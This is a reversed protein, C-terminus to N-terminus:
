LNLWKKRVELQQPSADPLPEIKFKVKNNRLLTVPLVMPLGDRTVAVSVKDGIKKGNLMTSVDTVPVSDVATLEDNVNLGDIWGAGGRLVTTIIKKGNNNSINIGMTPDNADTLEDSLKYGAYGLYKGYDIPAVGYIYKKYFDDFDKGAFKEIGMKFEADTYGRKKLKYYTNYMYRMVDDLSNKGNSSNIIELDILMAVLAGKDYYSIGTNVSNENPRYAKIWSDYSSEALPQVKAGPQNEVVNIVGAIADSGYQSSAGDRLVEIRDIASAPIANLDTGVSGRGVTGNVNLLATNYRRKGNVLVLTQDPGLGRITAPDIHDTGDAVTQRNSNYSPAVFNIMQTPEVQGTLNLERNTIVDVPVPTQTRSRSISSRSGVVIVRNLDGSNQMEFNNESVSGATVSVQKRQTVVGVYSVILTYNGPAVKLEYNGSADSVTGKKTGDLIVSAGAMPLGNADRVSGRLSATQAIANSTIFFCIVLFGVSKLAFRFKNVM